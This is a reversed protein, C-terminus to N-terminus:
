WARARRSWGATQWRKGSVAGANRIAGTAASAVLQCAQEARRCRASRLNPRSRPHGVRAVRGSGPWPEGRRGSTVDCCRAALEVVSRTAVSSGARGRGAGPCGLSRYGRPAGCFEVLRDGASRGSVVVAAASRLQQRQGSGSVAAASRQRLRQGCSCSSGSVAVALGRGDSRSRLACDRLRQRSRPAARVRLAVAAWDCRPIGPDNGDSCRGSAARAVASRATSCRGARRAVGEGQGIPSPTRAGRRETDTRVVSTDASGTFSRTLSRACVTAVRQWAREISSRSAKRM